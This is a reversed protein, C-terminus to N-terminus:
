ADKGDRKRPPSPWRAEGIVKLTRRRARKALATKLGGAAFPAVAALLLAAFWIPLAHM